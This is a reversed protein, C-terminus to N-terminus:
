NAKGWEKIAKKLDDETFDLWLRNSFHVHANISDWLLFGDLKRDRGTKIIIDPPLFYSSYINDKISEKNISEPDMKGLQVKRAILKCADTIEDQGDYNICLNLFFNDYDRTSDIVEKIPDVVRGPLDYWKGLVSIKIKNEDLAKLSKLNEFFEALSAIIDVYHESEKIKGTLLYLTIIPINFKTQMQILHSIKNIMQRYVRPMPVSHKTSYARHGGITIAIHNPSKDGFMKNVIYYFVCFM